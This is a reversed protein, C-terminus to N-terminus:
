ETINKCVDEWKNNLQIDGELLINDRCACIEQREQEKNTERPRLVLDPICYDSLLYEMFSNIFQNETSTKYM